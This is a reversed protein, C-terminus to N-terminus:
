DEKQKKIKIVSYIAAAISILGVLGTILVFDTPRDAYEIEYAANERSSSVGIRGSTLYTIFLVAFIASILISIWPLPKQDQQPENEM